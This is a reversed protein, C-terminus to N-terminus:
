GVKKQYYNERISLQEQFHLSEIEYAKQQAKGAHKRLENEKDLFEREKQEIINRLVQCEMDKKYIVQYLQDTTM